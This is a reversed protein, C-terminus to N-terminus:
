GAVVAAVEVGTAADNAGEVVAAVVDVAAVVAAADPIGVPPRILDEL